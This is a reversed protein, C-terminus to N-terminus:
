TEVTWSSRKTMLIPVGVRCFFWSTQKQTVMEIGKCKNNLGVTHIKLSLLCIFSIHVWGEDFRAPPFPLPHLKLALLHHATAASGQPRTASESGGTPKIQNSRWDPSPIGCAAASKVHWLLLDKTGCRLGSTYVWLCMCILFYSSYRLILMLHQQLELSLLVDWYFIVSPMSSFAMLSQPWIRPNLDWSQRSNAPQHPAFGPVERPGLHRM